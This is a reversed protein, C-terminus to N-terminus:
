GRQPKSSMDGLLHQQKHPYCASKKILSLLLQALPSGLEIGFSEELRAVFCSSWFWDVTCCICCGETARNGSTALHSIVSFLRHSSSSLEYRGHAADASSQKRNLLATPPSTAAM